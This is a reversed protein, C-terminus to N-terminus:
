KRVQSFTKPKARELREVMENSLGNILNFQFNDPVKLNDYHNVREAANRQTAIYGRYLSDALATELEAIKIQKLLYEPLLRYIFASNVGQRM